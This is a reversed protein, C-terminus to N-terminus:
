VDSMRSVTSLGTGMMTNNAVMNYYAAINCLSLVVISEGIFVKKM